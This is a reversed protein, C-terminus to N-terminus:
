TVTVIPGWIYTLATLVQDFPKMMSNHMRNVLKYRCFQAWFKNANSCTRNFVSPPVGCMGSNLHPPATTTGTGGSGGAPATTNVSMSSLNITPLSTFLNISQAVPSNTQSHYSLAGISSAQSVPCSSAVPRYTPSEEPPDTAIPAPATYDPHKPDTINWYGLGFTNERAIHQTGHTFFTSQSDIYILSFWSNNIFKVPIPKKNKSYVAPIYYGEYPGVTTWHATGKVHTPLNNTIRQSVATLTTESPFLVEISAV